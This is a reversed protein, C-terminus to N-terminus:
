AQSNKDPASIMPAHQAAHHTFCHMVKRCKDFLLDYKPSRRHLYWTRTTRLLTPKPFEPKPLSYLTGQWCSDAVWNHQRWKPHKVNNLEDKPSSGPLSSCVNTFVTIDHLKKRCSQCESITRALILLSLIIHYSLIHYTVAEQTEMRGQGLPRRTEWHDASSCSSSFLLLQSHDRQLPGNIDAPVHQCGKELHRVTLCQWVMCFEEYFYTEKNKRKKGKWVDHPAPECPNASTGRLLVMFYRQHRSIELLVIGQDIQEWLILVPSFQSYRTPSAVTMNYNCTNAFSPLGLKRWLNQQAYKESMNKPLTSETMPNAHQCTLAPIPSYRPLPHRQMVFDGPMTENNKQGGHWKKNTTKHAHQYIHIMHYWTDPFSVKSSWPMQQVFSRNLCALLSALLCSHFFSLDLFSALVPIWFSLFLLFSLYPSILLILSALFSCSFSQCRSVRRRSTLPNNKDNHQM